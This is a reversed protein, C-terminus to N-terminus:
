ATETSGDLSAPSLEQRLRQALAQRAKEEQSPEAIAAAVLSPDDEIVSKIFRRTYQMVAEQQDADLGDFAYLLKACIESFSFKQVISDITSEAPHNFMDGQGTRLWKENVSPFESLILKVHREQVERSGVEINSIGSATLGIRKGFDTQNLNLAKRLAIIRDKM